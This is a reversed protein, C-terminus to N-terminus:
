SGNDNWSPSLLPSFVSFSEPSGADFFRFSEVVGPFETTWGAFFVVSGNRNSDNINKSIVRQPYMVSISRSSKNPEIPSPRVLDCTNKVFEHRM